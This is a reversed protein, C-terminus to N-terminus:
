TEQELQRIEEQLMKIVKSKAVYVMAAQMKVAAAVQAVAQGELALLRFAEWTQPAVRLRVQIKAAEFLEQDFAAELRHVFDERARVSQVLRLVATDGSGLGARRRTEEFDIWAHRAITKLWAAIKRVQNVASTM